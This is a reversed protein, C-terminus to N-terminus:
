VLGKILIGSYKVKIYGKVKDSNIKVSLDVYKFLSRIM